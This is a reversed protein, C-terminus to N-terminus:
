MVTCYVITEEALRYIVQIIIYLVDSSTLDCSRNTMILDCACLQYGQGIPDHVSHASHIM